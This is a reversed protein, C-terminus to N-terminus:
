KAVLTMYFYSKYNSSVPSKKIISNLHSVIEPKTDEIKESEYILSAVSKFGTKKKEPEKANSDDSAENSEMKKVKKKAMDRGGHNIFTAKMPPLSAYRFQWGHSLCPEAM